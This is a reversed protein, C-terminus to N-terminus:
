PLDEWEVDTIQTEEVYEATASTPAGDAPMEKFKVYEGADRDFVKRHQARAPYSWGGHRREPEPEVTANRWAETARKYQRYGGYLRTGVKLIPLLIFWFFLILLLLGFFSM